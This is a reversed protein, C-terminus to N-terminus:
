KLIIYAYNGLVRYVRYGVSNPSKIALGSGDSSPIVLDGISITEGDKIKVQAKGVGIIDAYSGVKLTGDDELVGDFVVGDAGTATVEGTADIVPTAPVIGSATIKVFTHKQMGSQRVKVSIPDM